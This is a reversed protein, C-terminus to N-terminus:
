GDGGATSGGSAAERQLRERLRSRVREPVPPSVGLERRLAAVAEAYEGGFRECWDCGRLHGQVRGLADAPLSGDLVEPLRELVELCRIGAVERDHAM